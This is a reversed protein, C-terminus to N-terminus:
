TVTFPTSYVTPASGDMGSAWAYWTGTSAPIPVYAGWLNTNVLSGATWSTPATSASTSFGFQIAASAPTVHGNVGIVGAGHVYSGSPPVNWVISTVAGVPASTITTVIASIPGLGGANVGLVNFDYTTNATLNSVVLTTSTVNIAATSWNM